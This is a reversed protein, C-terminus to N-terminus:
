EEDRYQQILRGCAEKKARSYGRERVAATWEETVMDKQGKIDEDNGFKVDKTETNRYRETGIIEMEEDTQERSDGIM